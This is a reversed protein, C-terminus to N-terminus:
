PKPPERRQARFEDLKKLEEPTFKDYKRKSGGCAVLILIAGVIFCTAIIVWEYIELLKM